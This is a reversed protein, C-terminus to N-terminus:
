QRDQPERYRMGILDFISEETPTDLKSGAKYLGHQNLLLGKKKALGRMLKNFNKSGTAYLLYPAYDDYIFIDCFMWFAPKVRIFTRIIEPGQVFPEIMHINKRITKMLGDELLRRPMLIDFDNCTPQLRRWSGAVTCGLKEFILVTKEMVRRPVNEAPRYKIYLKTTDPLMSWIEPDDLASELSRGKLKKDLKKQLVPGVGYM